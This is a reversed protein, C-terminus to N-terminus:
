TEAGNGNQACEDELARDPIPQALQNLARHVEDRVLEECRIADTEQALQDRLQAPMRLLIDRANLIMSAVASRVEDVMVLEGRKKALELERLGALAVEKRLQAQFFTEGTEGTGDLRADSAMVNVRKGDMVLVGRKKLAAIRPESVQRHRAYERQTMKKATSM